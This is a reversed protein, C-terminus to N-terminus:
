APVWRGHDDMLMMRDRRQLRTGGEDTVLLWDTFPFEHGCPRAVVGTLERITEYEGRGEVFSHLSEAEVERIQMDVEVITNMEPCYPCDIAPPNM